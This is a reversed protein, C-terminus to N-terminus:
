WPRLPETVRGVALLDSLSWPQPAVLLYQCVAVIHLWTDFIVAYSCSPDSDFGGYGYM